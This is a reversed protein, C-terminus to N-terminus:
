SVDIDVGEADDGRILVRYMVLYDLYKGTQNVSLLRGGGAIDALFYGVLEVIKSISISRHVWGAGEECPVM